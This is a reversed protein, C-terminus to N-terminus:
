VRWEVLRTEARTDRFSRARPQRAILRPNLFGEKLLMRAVREASQRSHCPLADHHQITVLPVLPAATQARKCEDAHDDQADLAPNQESGERELERNIKRVRM